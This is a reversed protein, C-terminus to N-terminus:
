MKSKYYCKNKRKIFNAIVECHNSPRLSQCFQRAFNCFQSEHRQFPLLGSGHVCPHFFTLSWAHRNDASSNPSNTKYVTQRRRLIEHRSSFNTELSQDSSLAFVSSSTSDSSRRVHYDPDCM